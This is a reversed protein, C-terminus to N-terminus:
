SQSANDAATQAAALKQTADEHGRKLADVVDPIRNLPFVIEAHTGDDRIVGWTGRTGLAGSPVTRIGVSATKSEDFPNTPVRGFWQETM